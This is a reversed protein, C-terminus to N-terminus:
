QSITHQYEHLIHTVMVLQIKNIPALKYKCAVSYKINQFHYQTVPLTDLM